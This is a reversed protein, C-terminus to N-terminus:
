QVGAELAKLGAQELAYRANTAQSPRGNLGPGIDFVVARGAIPVGMPEMWGKIHLFYRRGDEGLLFGYGGELIWQYVVGNM